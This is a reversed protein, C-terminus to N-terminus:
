QDKGRLAVLVGELAAQLAALEIPKAVHADVGAALYEDVQHHLANASLAIIPTRPRSRSAEELRIARTAQVGDMLVAAMDLM